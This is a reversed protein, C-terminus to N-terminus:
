IYLTYKGTPDVYPVENHTIYVSQNQRYRSLFRLAIWSFKTEFGEVSASTPDKDPIKSVDIRFLLQDCNFWQAKKIEIGDVAFNESTAQVVFATFNDNVADFRAKSIHWGGIRTINDTFELGVEETMERRLTDVPSEGAKMAGTVLKWKGYEWVLLVKMLDPSLILGGVGEISTAYVPVKDEIPNGSEDKVKWIYYTYANNQFHHFKIDFDNLTPLYRSLQKAPIEIYIAGKPAVTRELIELCLQRTTVKNEAVIAITVSDFRGPRVEM